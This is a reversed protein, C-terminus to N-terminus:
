GYPTLAKFHTELLAGRTDRLSQFRRAHTVLDIANLSVTFQAAVGVPVSTGVVSVAVPENDHM